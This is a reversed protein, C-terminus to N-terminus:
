YCRCNFSTKDLKGVAPQAPRVHRTNSCAMAAGSVLLVCFVQLGIGRMIPQLSLVGFDLTVLEWWFIDAPRLSFVQVYLNVVSFFM